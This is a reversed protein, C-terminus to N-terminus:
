THKLSTVHTQKIPLTITFISGQGPKSKIDISGHHEEIIQHSIYLGLGTGQGIEKTTFFPDFIHKQIDEGMGMGTDTISIKITGSTQNFTFNSDEEFSNGQLISNFVCTKIIIKGQDKIAQIANSLINMFVQNIPGPFCEIHPLDGYNKIIEIRNQIQNKLLALTSDLNEHINITKLADEDLRSFTSLSNVIEKTKSTGFKIGQILEEIEELALDFELEQKLIKIYKIQGSYNEQNMSDYADLITMLDLLNKQLGSVSTSIYNIPNNIEHAIGATLQGLSAMKEAHILQQQTLSLNAILTSLEENKQAIENKQTDLQKNLQKQRSYYTYTLAIITISLLLGIILIYQNRNQAMQKEKINELFLLENHVNRIKEQIEKVRREIYLGQTEYNFFDQRKEELFNLAQVYIAQYEKYFQHAKQEKTQLRYIDGAYRILNAMDDLNRNCIVFLLNGGELAPTFVPAYIEAIMKKLQKPYFKLEQPAQITDGFQFLFFSTQHKYLNFQHQHSENVLSLAKPYDKYQITYEILESYWLPDSKTYKEYVMQEYVEFARNKFGSDQYIKLISELKQLKNKKIQRKDSSIQDIITLANQCAWDISDTQNIHQYLQALIKYDEFLLSNNLYTSQSPPHTKQSKILIQYLPIAQQYKKESSLNMAKTRLDSLTKLQNQTHQAWSHPIRFLSLIILIIYINIFFAKM